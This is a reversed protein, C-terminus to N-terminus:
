WVPIVSSIPWHWTGYPAHSYFNLTVSWLFRILKDRGTLPTHTSINTLALLLHNQFTVDRLPRTLLFQLALASAFAFSTVDRLPRTLLFLFYNVFVFSLIPWTGYPAHSYFYWFLFWFRWGLLWTGYPAHSYFHYQEILTRLRNQWTGYPAHSYFNWIFPYNPM